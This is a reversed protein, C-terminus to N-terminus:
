QSKPNHNPKNGGMLGVLSAVSAGVLLDGSPLSEFVPSSTKSLDIMFGLLLGGVALAVARGFSNDRTKSKPSIVAAACDGDPCPVLGIEANVESGDAMLISVKSDASGMSRVMPNEFYERMLADHRSRVSKPIIRSVPRGVLDARSYGIRSCFHDNVERVMGTKDVVITAIPFELISTDFAYQNENSM